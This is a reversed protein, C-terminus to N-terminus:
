LNLLTGIDSGATDHADAKSLMFAAGLWGWFAFVFTLLPTLGMGIGNLPTLGLLQCYHRSLKEAAPLAEGHRCQGNGTAGGCITRKNMRSM